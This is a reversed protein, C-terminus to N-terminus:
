KKQTKELKEIRAIISKIVPNEELVIDSDFSYPSVQFIGALLERTYFSSPVYKGKEWDYITHRSVGTMEALVSVTIGKEERLSKLNDGFKSM